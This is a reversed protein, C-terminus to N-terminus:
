VEAGLFLMNISYPMSISVIRTILVKCTPTSLLMESIAMWDRSMNWIQCSKILLRCLLFEMLLPHDTHLEFGSINSPCVTQRDQFEKLETDLGTRLTAQLVGSALSTGVLGGINASLYLGTSAIAMQAEDVGAALAVFTTALIIGTGFGGPGIYLSEWISTNGDWRLILLLYGM